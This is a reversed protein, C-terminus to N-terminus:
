AAGGVVDVACPLAALAEIDHRRGKPLPHWICWSLFREGTALDIMRLPTLLACAVAWQQAVIARVMDDRHAARIQATVDVFVEGSSGVTRLYINM